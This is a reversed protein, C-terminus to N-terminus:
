EVANFGSWFISCTSKLRPRASHCWYEPISAFVEALDSIVRKQGSGEAIYSPWILQALLLALEGCLDSIFEERTIGQLAFNRKIWAAM